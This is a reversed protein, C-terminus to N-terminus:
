GWIIGMEGERQTSYTPFRVNENQIVTLYLGGVMVRHKRTDIPFKWYKYKKLGQLYKM